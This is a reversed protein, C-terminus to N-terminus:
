STSTGAPAPISGPSSTGIGKKAWSKWSTGAGANVGKTGTTDDLSSLM